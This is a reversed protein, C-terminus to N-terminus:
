DSIDSNDSVSSGTVLIENEMVPWGEELESIVQVDFVEITNDSEIEFWEHTGAASAIDWADDPTDAEVEMYYQTIKDGTVRYKHM